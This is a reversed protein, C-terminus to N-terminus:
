EKSLLVKSRKAMATVQSLHDEEQEEEYQNELGRKRTSMRWDEDQRLQKLHRSVTVPHYLKGDSCRVFQDEELVKRWDGGEYRFEIQNRSKLFELEEPSSWTRSHELDTYNRHSPICHVVVSEYFHVRKKNNRKTEALSVSSLEIRSGFHASAAKTTTTTDTSVDILPNFLEDVSLFCSHGSSGYKRLPPEEQHPCFLVM